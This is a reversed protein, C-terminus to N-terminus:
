TQLHLTRTHQWHEYAFRSIGQRVYFFGHELCCARLTKAAEQEPSALDVVPLCMDGEPMAMNPDPAAGDAGKGM